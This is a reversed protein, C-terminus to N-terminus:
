SQHHSSPSAKNCLTPLITCLGKEKKKRKRWRIFTSFDCWILYLPPLPSQCVSLYASLCVSLSPPFSLSLSLCHSVSLCVSLCVSLSVCLSSSLSVTVCVSLCLSVSVYVCLCLSVSVSFPVCLCLCLSVSISVCLCLCLSLSFSQVCSPLVPLPLANHPSPPPNRPNPPPPSTVYRSWARVGLVDPCLWWQGEARKAERAQVSLQSRWSKVQREAPSVYNGHCTLERRWM